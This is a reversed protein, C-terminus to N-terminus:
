LGQAVVLLDRPEEIIFDTKNKKLVEKSNLGWCVSASKMGVKRAAEIDRVEDGVYVANERDIGANLLLKKIKKDKGFLAKESYVFDFIELKNNKLFTEANRRSNSTVIAIVFGREKLEELVNRLDRKLVVEKIKKNFLKKAEVSFAVLDKYSIGFEVLLEKTTKDRLRQLKSKEVKEYGFKDALENAIEFVVELSDAITGDFDFM